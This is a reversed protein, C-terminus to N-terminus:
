RYFILTKLNECRHLKLDLDEPNHSWASKHYSVFTESTWATEGQLHLCCPARFGQHGVVVNCPTVVWFVEVKFYIRNEVDRVDKCDCNM